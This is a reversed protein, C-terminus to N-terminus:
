RRTRNKNQSRKHEEAEIEAFESAVIRQATFLKYSQDFMGGEFLNIGTKHAHYLMSGSAWIWEDLWSVPCEPFKFDNLIFFKQKPTQTLPQGPGRRRRGRRKNSSTRYRNAADAVRELKELENIEDEISIEINDLETQSKAAAYKQKAVEAQEPTFRGCFKQRSQYKGTLLCTSCNWSEAEKKKEPKGMEQAYRIYGRLKQETESDILTLQQLIHDALAIIDSLELLEEAIEVPSLQGDEDRFRDTTSRDWSELCALAVQAKSEQNFAGASFFGRNTLDIYESVKLGRVYATAGYEKFEYPAVFRGLSNYTTGGLSV